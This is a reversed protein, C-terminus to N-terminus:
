KYIFEKTIQNHDRLSDTKTRNINILPSKSLVTGFAFHRLATEASFRRVPDKEILGKLLDIAILCVSM